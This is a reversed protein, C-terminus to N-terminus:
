LKYNRWNREMETGKVPLVGPIYLTNYKKESELCQTSIYNIETVLDHINAEDTVNIPM